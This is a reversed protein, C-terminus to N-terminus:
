FVGVPPDNITFGGPPAGATIFIGPPPVYNTEVAPVYEMVTPRVANIINQGFQPYASGVLFVALLIILSVTTVVSERVWSWVMKVFENM